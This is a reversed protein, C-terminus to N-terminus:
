GEQEAVVFLTYRLDIRYVTKIKMERSNAVSGM